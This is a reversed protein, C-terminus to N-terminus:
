IWNSYTEPKNQSVFPYAKKLNNL